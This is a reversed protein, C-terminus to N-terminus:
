DLRITTCDIKNLNYTNEISNYTCILDKRVDSLYIYCEIRNTAYRGDLSGEFEDNSKDWYGGGNLAWTASNSATGISGQSLYFKIMGDISKSKMGSFKSNFVFTGGHFYGTATSDSLSYCASKPPKKMAAMTGPVIMLSLSVLACVTLVTRKM